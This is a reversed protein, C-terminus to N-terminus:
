LLKKLFMLNLLILMMLAFIFISQWVPYFALWSGVVLGVAGSSVFIGLPAMKKGASTLIVTGAGLHFLCNGIGILLIRAWLNFYPIFGLLLLFFSSIIYHKPQVKKFKDLVIGAFPQLCFAYFNYLVYFWLAPFIDRTSGIVITACSADVCFHGLTQKLLMNKKLESVM